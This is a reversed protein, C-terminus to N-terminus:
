LLAYQISSMSLSNSGTRVTGILTSMQINCKTGDCLPIRARLVKRPSHVGRQVQWHNQCLAKALLCSGGCGCLCVIRRGPLLVDSDQYCAASCPGRVAAQPCGHCVDLNAATTHCVRRNAYPTVSTVALLAECSAERVVPM